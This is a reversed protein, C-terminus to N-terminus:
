TRTFSMSHWGNAESQESLTLGLLYMQQVIEHCWAATFGSVWLIGNSRLRAVLDPLVNLLVNVYINALVLDYTDDTLPLSPSVSVKAECRNQRINQRLTHLAADDIEIADVQTAGCLVAAFTLVGSGAGFDLCSMEILGNDQFQKLFQLGLQTTPHEGWGFGAGPLLCIERPASPTSPEPVLCFGGVEVANRQALHTIAEADSRAVKVTIPAFWSSIKNATLHPSTWIRYVTSGAPVSLEQFTSFGKQILIGIVSEQDSELLTLDFAICDIQPNVGM